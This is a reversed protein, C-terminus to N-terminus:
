SEVRFCFSTGGHELVKGFSAFQAVVECHESVSLDLKFYHASSSLDYNNSVGSYSLFFQQNSLEFRQDFRVFTLLPLQGRDASYLAINIVRDRLLQKIQNL